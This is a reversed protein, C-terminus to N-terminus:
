AMMRSAKLYRAMQGDTEVARARIFPTLTRQIYSSFVGFLERLNEYADVIGASYLTKKIEIVAIVDGVPWKYKTTNPILDGQGRVMMCDLEPSLRGKGASAFGSVVRVDLQERMAARRSSLAVYCDEVRPRFFWRSRCQM